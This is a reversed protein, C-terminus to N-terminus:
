PHRRSLYAERLADAIGRGRAAVTAREAKLADGDDWTSLREENFATFAKLWTDILQLGPDRPATRKFRTAM